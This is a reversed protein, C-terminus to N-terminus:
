DEGYEKLSFREGEDRGDRSKLGSFQFALVRLIILHDFLNDTIGPAKKAM